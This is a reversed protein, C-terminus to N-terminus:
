REIDLQLQFSGMLDGAKRQEFGQLETLPQGITGMFNEAKISQSGDDMYVEMSQMDLLLAIDKSNPQPNIDIWDDDDLAPDKEWMSIYVKVFPVDNSIIPSVLNWGFSNTSSKSSVKKDDRRVSVPSSEMRRVASAAWNWGKAIRVKVFLEEVNGSSVDGDGSGGTIGIKLFNAKLKFSSVLGRSSSINDNNPDIDIPYITNIGDIDLPSLRFNSNIPANPNQKRVMTPGSGPKSFANGHYHMVSQFDYEATVIYEDCKGTDFNHGKGSKINETNVTVFSDRDSRAQEHYFGLSHLTEHFILRQLNSDVADPDGFAEGLKVDNVNACRGVPSSYSKSAPKYNYFIFSNSWEVDKDNERFYEPGNWRYAQPTGFRDSIEQFTLNTHKHFSDIADYIAQKGKEPMIPDIRFPIIGNNWLHEHDPDFQGDDNADFAGVLAARNAAVESSTATHVFRANINQRRPHAKPKPRNQLLSVPGLNIDDQYIADGDEVVYRISQRPANPLKVSARFVEPTPAVPAKVDTLVVDKLNDINNSNTNTTSPVETVADRINTHDTVKKGSNRSTGTNRPNKENPKKANRKQPCLLSLSARKHNNNEVRESVDNKPDVYAVLYMRGNKCVTEMGSEPLVISINITKFEKPHITVGEYYGKTVQHDDIFTKGNNKSRFGPLFDNGSSMNINLAYYGNQDGSGRVNQSTGRATGSGANYIVVEGNITKGAKGAFTKIKFSNIRLDPTGEVFRSSRNTNSSTRSSSNTNSRRTPTKMADQVTRTKVKQNQLLKNQGNKTKNIQGYSTISSCVLISLLIHFIAKM